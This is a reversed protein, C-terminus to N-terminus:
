ATVSGFPATMIQVSLCLASRNDAKTSLRGAFGAGRFGGARLGAAFFGTFPLAFHFWMGHFQKEITQDDYQKNPYQHKINHLQNLHVAGRRLMTRPGDDLDSRGVKGFSHLMGSLLM